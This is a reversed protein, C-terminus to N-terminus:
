VSYITPLTLHTYSGALISTYYTTVTAKKTADLKKFNDFNMYLCTCKNSVCYAELMDFQQLPKGQDIM